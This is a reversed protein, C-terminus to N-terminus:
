PNRRYRRWGLRAPRRDPGVSLGEAENTDVIGKRLSAAVLLSIYLRCRALKLATSVIISVFDALDKQGDYKFTAPALNRSLSMLFGLPISSKGIGM